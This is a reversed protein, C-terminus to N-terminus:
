IAYYAEKDKERIERLLRQCQRIGLEVDYKNLIYNHLSPGDWRKYGFKKPNECLVIKIEEKQDDDLKEPRGSQKKIKLSEFGEEDVSKMWLTLTRSTEGCSESLSSPMMGNLMLNVLTVKRLFKADNSSSVIREGESILLDKDSKFKRVNM